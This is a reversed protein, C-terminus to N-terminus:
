ATSPPRNYIGSSSLLLFTGFRKSKGTISSINVITGRGGRDRKMMHERLVADIGLFRILAQM